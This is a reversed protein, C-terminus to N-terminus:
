GNALGPHAPARLPRLYYVWLAAVERAMFFPMQRLFYSERAPVTYVEWGDRQYAMKIRPLHYFHSVVLVRSARMKAFIAETNRVTAQTNRGGDDVIIDEPRVGFKLALQKMAETEHVLGDGPGGSLVLKRTLGDRYLQCATRVRDSLADSPHGDAYTRAGFVVAVDAVRRYDTKGFCLMQALPFAVLCVLCVAAVRWLSKRPRPVLPRRSCDILILSLAVMVFLSLPVPLSTSVVQRLLLDYFVISDALCGVALLAVCVITLARRWGSRPPRLSYAVLVIASLLLGGDAWPQPFARIDIWWLNADFRESRLQGALNLLSFGGLFLALGRPLIDGLLAARQNSSLAGGAPKAAAQPAAAPNDGPTGNM